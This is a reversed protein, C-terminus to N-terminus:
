GGVHAVRNSAVESTAYRISDLVHDDGDPYNAYFNGNRDQEYEYGLLERAANPTRKPDVVIGGLDQMWRYGHERSGPGKKVGVANIGRQRLENIMRPDASDCRVVERGASKKINAALVDTPTHSSYFEDIIYLKRDRANYACRVFADPDVAFGFDCGNYFRDLTNVEADPIARLELNDFVQGGTGTIEGLYENRYARDNTRKLQEAENLFAAGLWEPHEDIVDLYTSHHVLRDPRDTLAEANVWSGASRPPNYSYFTIAHDVSRFASQKITRIDAMGRFETLEEFWLYKFYGVASKLSKSKMPDDAGMFLIRQQTKKHVIELPSRHYVFYDAVGLENLAWLMQTYVSDKLTNGVKRYVIANALPDKLMGIVIEESIFSSKTSGRGGKLLYEAHPAGSHWLDDHVSQFASCCHEMFRVRRETM